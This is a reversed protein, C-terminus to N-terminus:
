VWLESTTIGKCLIHNTCRMVINRGSWLYRSMGDYSVHRGFTMLGVTMKKFMYLVPCKYVSLFIRLSEHFITISNQLYAICARLTQGLTASGSGSGSETPDPRKPNGPDPDPDPFIGSGSGKDM